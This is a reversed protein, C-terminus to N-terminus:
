RQPRGQGRGMGPGNGRGRGMGGAGTGGKCRGMGMGQGPQMGAGQRSNLPASNPSLGPSKSTAAVSRDAAMSRSVADKVVGAQGDILDIGAASLAQLAKPGCRGTLVVRAGRDAVFRASQVGAGGQLAASENQFAEFSMDDTEVILFWACRGFRPDIESNLDNGSSSVAIRM